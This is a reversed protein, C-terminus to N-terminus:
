LDDFDAGYVLELGALSAQDLPLVQFDAHEVAAAGEIRDLIATRV